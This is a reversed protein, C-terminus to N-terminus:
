VAPVIDAKIKESILGAYLVNGSKDLVIEVTNGDRMEFFYQKSADSNGSIDSPIMSSAGNTVLCTIADKLSMGFVVGYISYDANCFVRIYEINKNDKNFTDLLVNSNMWGNHSKEPQYKLNKYDKSANDISSGLVAKLDKANSDAAKPPNKIYDWATFDHESVGPDEIPNLESGKREYASAKAEGSTLDIDIRVPYQLNNVTFWFTSKNDETKEFYWYRAIHPEIDTLSGAMYYEFAKKADDETLKESVASTESTDATTDAATDSTSEEPAAISSEAASTSATTADTGNGACGTMPMLMMTCALLAALSRDSHNLFKEM